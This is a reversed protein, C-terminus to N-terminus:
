ASGSLPKHIWPIEIVFTVLHGLLLPSGARGHHKKVTTNKSTSCPPKKPPVSPFELERPICGWSSLALAGSDSFTSLRLVCPRGVSLRLSTPRLRRTRRALAIGIFRDSNGSFSRSSPFSQHFKQGTQPACITFWLHRKTHGLGSHRKKMLQVSNSEHRDAMAHFPRGCM